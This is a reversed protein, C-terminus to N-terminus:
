FAFFNGSEIAQGYNLSAGVFPFSLASRSKIMVISGRWEIPSPNRRGANDARGRKAVRESRQGPFRQRFIFPIPEGVGPSQCAAQWDNTMVIFARPGIPSRNRLALM